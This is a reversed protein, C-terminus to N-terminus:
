PQAAIVGQDTTTCVVQDQAACAIIQDVALRLWARAIVEINNGSGCTIIEDKSTGAIILYECADTSISDKAAGPVIRNIAAELATKPEALSGAREVVRGVFAIQQEAAPSVVEEITAAAVVGEITARAGICKDAAWAGIEQGSAPLVMTCMVVAADLIPSISSSPM